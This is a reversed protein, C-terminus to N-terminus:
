VVFLFVYLLLQAIYRIIEIYYAYLNSFFSHENPFGRKFAKPPDAIQSEDKM